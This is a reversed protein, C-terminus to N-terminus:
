SVTLLFGDAIHDIDDEVLAFLSAGPRDPAERSYQILLHQGSSNIAKADISAIIPVSVEQGNFTSM